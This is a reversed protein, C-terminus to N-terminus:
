TMSPQRRIHHVYYSTLAVCTPMGRFAPTALGANTIANLKVPGGIHVVDFVRRHTLSCRFLDKVYYVRKKTDGVKSYLAYTHCIFQRKVFWPNM